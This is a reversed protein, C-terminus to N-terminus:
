KDGNNRSINKRKRTNGVVNKNSYNKFQKNSYNVKAKEWEGSEILSHAVNNKVIKEKKTKKNILKIM